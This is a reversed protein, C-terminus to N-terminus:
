KPPQFKPILEYILDKYPTKLIRDVEDCVLVELRDLLEDFTIFPCEAELHTYEAQNFFM